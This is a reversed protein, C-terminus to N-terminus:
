KNGKIEGDGGLPLSVAWRGGVGGASGGSGGSDRHPPKKGAM